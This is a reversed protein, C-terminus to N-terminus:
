LHILGKSSNFHITPTNLPSPTRALRLFRRVFPLSLYDSLVTLVLNLLETLVVYLFLILFIVWTYFPGLAQTSPSPTPFNRWYRILVHFLPVLNFLLWFTASIAASRRFARFTFLPSTYTRDFASIILNGLDLKDFSRGHLWASIFKTAEDSANSDLWIFGAYTAVALLFPGVLGLSGWGKVFNRGWFLAIFVLATM